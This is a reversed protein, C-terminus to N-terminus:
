PMVIVEVVLFSSVDREDEARLIVRGGKPRPVAKTRLGRGFGEREETGSGRRCVGLTAM